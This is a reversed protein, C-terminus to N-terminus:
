CAVRRWPLALTLVEWCNIWFSMRYRLSKVDPCIPDGEKGNHGGVGSIESLGQGVQQM